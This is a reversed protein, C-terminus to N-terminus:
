RGKRDLSSQPQAKRDRQAQIAKQDRLDQYPQILERHVLQDQLAQRAKQGWLGRYLLILGRLDRLVQQVQQGTLVPRDPSVPHAQQDLAQLSM